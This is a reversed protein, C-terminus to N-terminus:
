KSCISETQQLAILFEKNGDGGLIPSETIGLVNLDISEAFLRTNSVIRAHVEPDRVIGGSEVESREAEFQPKILAIIRGGPHLWGKVVPLIKELSIFSVDISILHVQEPLKEVYRANTREMVVVRPDMRLKYDLEGYGVDIAYVKSAGNRLLVETFGGTSSGVDACVLNSTNLAFVEFAHQLKLAGRGVFEKGESVVVTSDISVAVGPKEVREGEVRVRGARILREADLLNQLNLDRAVRAVLKERLRKTAVVKAESLFPHLGRKFYAM